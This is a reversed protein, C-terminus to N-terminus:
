CANYQPNLSLGSSSHSALARFWKTPPAVHVLAFDAFRLADSGPFWIISAVVAGAAHASHEAWGPATTDNPGKAENMAMHHSGGFPSPDCVTACGGGATSFDDGACGPAVTGCVPLRADNFVRASGTIPRIAVALCAAAIFAFIAFAARRGAARRMLFGSVDTTSTEPETARM